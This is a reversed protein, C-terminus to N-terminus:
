RALFLVMQYLVLGVLVVVDLGDSFDLWGMVGGIVGVASIGIMMYIRDFFVKHRKHRKAAM